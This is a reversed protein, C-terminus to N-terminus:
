LMHKNFTISLMSSGVGIIKSFQRHGMGLDSKIAQRIERARAESWPVGEAQRIFIRDFPLINNVSEFDIDNPSKAFLAVEDEQFSHYAGPRSNGPWQVFWFGMASDCRSQYQLTLFQSKLAMFEAGDFSIDVLYGRLFAIKEKAREELAYLDGSEHPPEVFGEQESRRLLFLYDPTDVLEKESLDDVISSTSRRFRTAWREFRDWQAQVDSTPRRQLM